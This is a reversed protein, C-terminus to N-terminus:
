SRDGRVDRDRDRLDRCAGDGEDGVFLLEVTNLGLDSRALEALRLRVVGWWYPELCATVDEPPLRRQAQALVWRWFKRRFNGLTNM